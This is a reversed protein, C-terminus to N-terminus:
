WIKIHLNIEYFIASHASEDHQDQGQRKERGEGEESYVGGM